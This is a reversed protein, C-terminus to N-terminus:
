LSEVFDEVVDNLHVPALKLANCLRVLRETRAPDDCIDSITRLVAETGDEYKVSVAIGCSKRGNDCIESVVSYQYDM